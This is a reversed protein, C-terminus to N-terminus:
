EEVQIQSASNQSIVADEKSALAKEVPVDKEIKDEENKAKTKKNSDQLLELVPTKSVKRNGIYVAFLLVLLVFRWLGVGLWPNFSLDPMVGSPM